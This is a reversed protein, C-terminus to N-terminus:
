HRTRFVSVYACVIHVLVMLQHPVKFVEVFSKILDFQVTKQSGMNALDLELPLM